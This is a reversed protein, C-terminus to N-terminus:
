KWCQEFRENLYNISSMKILSLFILSNRKTDLKGVAYGLGSFFFDLKSNWKERENHQPIEISDVKKIQLLRRDNPKTILEVKSETADM